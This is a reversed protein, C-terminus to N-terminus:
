FTLIFINTPFIPNFVHIINTKNLPLSSEGQCQQISLAEFLMPEEKKHIYRALLLGSFISLDSCLVLQSM